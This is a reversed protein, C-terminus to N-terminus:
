HLSESGSDEQLFVGEPSLFNWSYYAISAAM